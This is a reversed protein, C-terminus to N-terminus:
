YPYEPFFNIQRPRYGFVDKFWDSYYDFTEGEVDSWQRGKIYKEFYEKLDPYAKEAYEKDEQERIDRWEAYAAKYQERSISEDWAYSDMINELEKKRNKMEQTM